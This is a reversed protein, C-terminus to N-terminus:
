GLRRRDHNGRDSSWQQNFRQLADAGDAGRLPTTEPGAVAALSRLEGLRRRDHNGRDSSWQQNFRKSHTRLTPAAFPHQNLAPLPQWPGCNELDDVGIMTAVIPHGNSTSERSPTRVTPATFPHQNLAPLPQCPGCNELDVGIM